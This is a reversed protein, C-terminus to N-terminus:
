NDNKVNHAPLALHFTTGKGHNSDAWLRGRHVEVITKAIALGMGLGGRKSSVFPEFLRPLIDSSVGGGTDSVTVEIEAKGNEFTQIALVRQAVPTDQMAEIGNLMVNLMVQELQVLSGKIPALNQELEADVTVRTHRAEAATLELAREIVANIDVAQQEVEEKRLFERVTDVVGAAQEALAAAQRLRGLVNPDTDKQQLRRVAGGVYNVIGALPQNLEHAINAVLESITGVRNAHALETQHQRLRNATREREAMLGLHMGVSAMSELLAKSPEFTDDAFFELVAVVEHGILVPFAMGTGIGLEDGATARGDLLDNSTDSSWEPKGSEFVRGPLGRGKPIRLQRTVERFRNFRGPAEEYYVNIAQLEDPRDEAPVFAHGFCWGNHQSVRRLVYRVADEFDETRNMELAIEYLSHLVKARHSLEQEAQKREVVRGLQTGIQVMVDLVEQDRQVRETEFFELVAVVRDRVMVPFMLAATVGLDVGPKHRKFGECTAFDDIWVPKGTAIVRGVLGKGSKFSVQRSTEILDAFEQPSKISWIDSDVFINDDVRAMYVHGVPWNMHRCIRDLTTRFASELSEAGNAIVAIDRLLTVHAARDDVRRQLDETRAKLQAEMFKHKSIDRAITSAGILNGKEDRVPSITLSVDIPRGDKTVRRTEYQRIHGGQKLRELIDSLEHSRDPPILLSASRGMIEEISYGYLREAGANWNTIVGDLTAGIIADDSSDAIVALRQKAEETQARDTVDASQWTADKRGEARRGRPSPQKSARSAPNKAQMNPRAQRERPM